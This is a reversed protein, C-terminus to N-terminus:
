AAHAAAPASPARPRHSCSLNEPPLTHINLFISNVHAGRQLPTHPGQCRHHKTHAFSQSSTHKTQALSQSSNHKTQALHGLSPVDCAIDRQPMATTAAPSIPVRALLAILKLTHNPQQHIRQVPTFNIIHLHQHSIRSAEFQQLIAQSSTTIREFTQPTPPSPTTSPTTAPLPVPVSNFLAHMNDVSALAHGLLM